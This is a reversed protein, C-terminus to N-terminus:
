SSVRRSCVAMRFFIFPSATAPTKEGNCSLPLLVLHKFRRTSIIRIFARVSFSSAGVPMLMFEQPALRNGAHEGGNLVNCCPVPLLIKPNGALNNIHEYLAIKKAAAGARCVAM